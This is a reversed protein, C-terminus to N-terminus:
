EINTLIYSLRRKDGPFYQYFNNELKIKTYGNKKVNLQLSTNSEVIDIRKTEVDDVYINVNYGEEIDYPIFINLNIMGTKSYIYFETTEETWGDDYWGYEKRIQGFRMAFDESLASKKNDSSVEGICLLFVNGEKIIDYVKGKKILDQLITEERGGLILDDNEVYIYNINSYDLYEILTDVNEVLAPNSMVIDLWTECICNFNILKSVDNSVMLVNNQKSSNIVNYIEQGYESIYKESNIKNQDIYGKNFIKAETFGVTWSWNSLSSVFLNFVMVTYLLYKFSWCKKLVFSGALLIASVYFLLFYNGDAQAIFYVGFLMTACILGELWLWKLYRRSWKKKAVLIAIALVVLFVPLATGWAIIVHSFSEGTPLIYFGYLKELLFEISNNVSAAQNIGQVIAYPYKLTIGFIDLLKGIFAILPSGTLLFTRGWIICLASLSIIFVSIGSRKIRMKKLPIFPIGGIFIITTFLLSTIKFTYSLVLNAAAFYIYVCNEDKKAYYFMLIGILQFLLTIVDPKVTMAMNLLSPLSVILACVICAVNTNAIAKAITWCVYVIILVLIENFLFQYNWSPFETLPLLITEFGKPYLYTFGVINLNEFIGYSSNALVSGSRLGYWFADHDGQLGCRGIQLLISIVLCIGLISEYKGFSKDMHLTITTITYKIKNCNVLLGALSLLLLLIWVNVVSYRNLLSLGGVSICVICMGVMLSGLWFVNKRIVINKEIFFMVFTGSLIIIAMYGIAGLLPLLTQHLYSFIVIGAGLIVYKKIGCIKLIVVSMLIGWILLELYMAHTEKLSLHYSYVGKIFMNYSQFCLLVIYILSIGIILIKDHRSKM